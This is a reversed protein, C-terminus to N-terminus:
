DDRAVKDKRQANEHAKQEFGQTQIATKQKNTTTKRRETRQTQDTRQIDRKGKGDANRNGQLKLPKEKRNWQKSVANENKQRTQENHTGKANDQVNPHATPAMTPMKM